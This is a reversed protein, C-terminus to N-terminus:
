WGTGFGLYFRPGPQEGDGTLEEGIAPTGDSRPRLENFGYAARLSCSWPRTFLSARLRVEAGADFLVYNGNDSAQDVLPIERRLPGGPTDPARFSWVNGATGSLQAGLDHVYLPGLQKDLYRRLPFGYALQVIAMTEGSLSYSPYGAFQSEPRLADTGFYYPHEGGAHLEDNRDVNKDIFGGQVDVQVVHHRRAAASLVPGWEPVRVAETWRLDVRDYGYADLVEGDDLVHGGYPAYLVDTFARTFALDIDRKGSGSTTFTAGLRADVSRQYPEFKPEDFARFGYEMYTGSLSTALHENWPYSVELAGLNAYRENKREIVPEASGSAADGEALYTYKDEYRMATAVITPYWGRFTYEGLFLSDEGLLAGVQLGHDQLYDQVYVEAGAQLAVDDLGNSVRVVPSGTPPMLQGRDRAPAYADLDERFALSEAVTEPRVDLGFRGSADAELFDARQVGWMKWGHATYNAFVLNGGPSLSPSEAGGIVNTVQSVSGRVPDMAYVNFIGTVDSAFYIRGDPAWCPDMDEWKDLNLARIGSGDANVLYLDQQSNRDMAVVIQTGDPSWDARQMWTGDDFHTLRAKETGDLKITVLNLTGDAYEFYAVRQGDPSVVPEVGRLTNPIPRWTSWDRPSQAVERGLLTRRARGRYRLNGERAAEDVLPAVYLQNWDYGDAELRVGTVQTFARPRSHESGVVVVADRGPVFDWSAMSRAPLVQATREAQEVVGPDVSGGAGFATFGAEPTQSVYVGGDGVYGYWKGDASFRPTLQNTGTALKAQERELKALEPGTVGEPRRWRPDLWADRGGPDTYEWARVDLSLEKGRTEGTAKVAAYQAEYRVRMAALWDDYLADGEVGLVRQFAQDWDARWARANDLGLRVFADHGFRERIYLGFSYGQQYYREPDNWTWRQDRVRWEAWTLQRDELISTRLLMDRSTSWTGYGAEDAAYEAVGEVWFASPNDGIVLEGGIDADIAPGSYLGGIVVGSTGEAHTMQAKLSLVHALEHAIVASLWDVRGRQRYLEVGPNASVQIWDWGPVAFGELDDAQELIVIHVKEKLWYGLTACERPYVDEAIRASRRATREASLYHVNDADDHSQPYHVVFHDTEITYWDLDPHNHPLSEKALASPMALALLLLVPM